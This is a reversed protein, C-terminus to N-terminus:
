GAGYLAIKWKIFLYYKKKLDKLPNGRAMAM